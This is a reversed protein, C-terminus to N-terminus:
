GKDKAKYGRRLNGYTARRYPVAHKDYTSYYKDAYWKYYVSHTLGLPLGCIGIELLELPLLLPESRAIVLWYSHRSFRAQQYYTSVLKKMKLNLKSDKADYHRM